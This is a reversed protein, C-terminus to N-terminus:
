QVRWVAVGEVAPPGQPKDLLTWSGDTEQKAWVHRVSFKRDTGRAVRSVYASVSRSTRGPIFFMGGVVLTDLPYRRRSVKPTRNIEPIPVGVQVKYATTM